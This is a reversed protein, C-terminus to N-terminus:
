FLWFLEITIKNAMFFDLINSAQSDLDPELRSRQFVGSAEFKGINSNFELQFADLNFCPPAFVSKVTLENLNLGAPICGVPVGSNSYPAKIQASPDLQIPQPYPPIRPHTVTGNLVARFSSSRAACGASSSGVSGVSM